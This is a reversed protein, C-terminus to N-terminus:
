RDGPTIALFAVGFPALAVDLLAPVAGQPWSGIMKRERSYLRASADPGAHEGLEVHAVTSTNSASVLVTGIQGVTLAVAAKLAPQLEVAAVPMAKFTGGIVAPFSWAKRIPHTRNGAWYYTLM